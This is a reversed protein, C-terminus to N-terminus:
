WIYHKETGELQFPSNLKVVEKHNYALLIRLHITKQYKLIIILVTSQWIKKSKIMSILQNKSHNPHCNHSPQNSTTISLYHVM